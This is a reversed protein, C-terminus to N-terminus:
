KLVEDSVSDNDIIKHELVLHREIRIDKNVSAQICTDAAVAGIDEAPQLASTIKIKMLGTTDITDFACVSVDRPINLGADLVAKIAGYAMSNNSALVAIPLKEHELLTEMACRGSEELNDGSILWSEEPEIGNKRLADAWGRIREDSSSEGEPGAIMFVVDHGKKVMHETLESAARANNITVSNTEGDMQPVNDFFVVPCNVSGYVAEAEESGLTTAAVLGAVKQGLLLHVANKERQEDANTNCLLVTFGSDAAIREIGKLALAFFPNAIDPVIVGLTNSVKTKLCRANEDPQYNFKKLAALIRKRTGPSVRDQNNVVRSVTSVSVNLYSAIEKLTAM